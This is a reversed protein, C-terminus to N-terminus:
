ASEGVCHSYMFKRDTSEFGKRAQTGPIKWIRAANFTKTDIHARESGFSKDLLNLLTRHSDKSKEDNPLAIPYCLHWGNGSCSMVAGELGMSGTLFGRCLGMVRWGEEREAETTPCSQDVLRQDDPGFRVPDIDILLWRREAIDDDKACEGPGRRIVECLDKNGPVEKLPNPTFYLGRCRKELQLAAEAMEELQDGQFWGAWTESGNVGLARLETIQEPQVFIKLWGAIDQLRQSM